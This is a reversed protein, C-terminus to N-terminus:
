LTPLLKLFDAVRLIEIGDYTGLRLLDNDGTVIYGSGSAVACELIRNDDPDDPVADLTMTPYVLTTFQSLRSSENQLAAQTWSFRDRLIREVEALLALSVALQFKRQLALVFFQRPLGGFNLASIYINTDATVCIV